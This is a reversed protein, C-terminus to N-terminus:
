RAATRSIKRSSSPKALTPQWRRHKRRRRSSPTAPQQRSEYLDTQPNDSKNGTAKM